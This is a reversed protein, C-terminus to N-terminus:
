DPACACIMRNTRPGLSARAPREAIGGASHGSHAIGADGRAFAGCDLHPRGRRISIGDQDVVIAANYSRPFNPERVSQIALALSSRSPGLGFETCCYITNDRGICTYVRRDLTADEMQSLHALSYLQLHLHCSTVVVM